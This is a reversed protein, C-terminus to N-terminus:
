YSAEDDAGDEVEDADPEAVYGGEVKDFGPRKGKVLEIIQVASFDLRMVLKKTSQMPIFRTTFMVRLKSGSFISAKTENGQSDFQQIKIDHVKDSDKAKIKANQRFSFKIEGTAVDADDTLVEYPPHVAWSKKDKVTMDATFSELEAALMAQLEDKLKVAEPGSAVLDVSYIGGEKFKTDAKNIWPYHAIGIPSYKFPQKKKKAPEM